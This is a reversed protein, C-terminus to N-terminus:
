RLRLRKAQGTRKFHLKIRWKILFQRLEKKGAFTQKEDAGRVEFMRGPRPRYRDEWVINANAYSYYRGITGPRQVVVEAVRVGDIWPGSKAELV